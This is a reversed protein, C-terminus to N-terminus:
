CSVDGKESLLGMTGLAVFLIHEVILDTCKSTEAHTKIIAVIGDLTLTALIAGMEPMPYEPAFRQIHSEFHEALLRTVTAKTGAYPTGDSCELLLVVRKDFVPMLAVFFPKLTNRWTTIDHVQWLEDPRGHDEHHDLLQELQLAVEAVLANFISQKDKFYNYFNGTTTGAAKVITRLSAKEFGKEYFEAEAAKLLAEEVTEKKTQM